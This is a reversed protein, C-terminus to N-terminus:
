DLQDVGERREVRDVDPEPVETTGLSEQPASSASRCCSRPGRRYPTGACREMVYFEAGIVADDRCLAYTRPVPVATDQLASMVRYQRAMDHATALVHGLPPPRVIRKPTSPHTPSCSSPSPKRSSSLVGEM